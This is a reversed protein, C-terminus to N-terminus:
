KAADPKVEEISVIVNYEHTDGLKMIAAEKTEADVTEIIRYFIGIANRRRGIFHIRYKM